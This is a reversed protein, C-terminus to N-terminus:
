DFRAHILGDVERVDGVRRIWAVYFNGTGGNHRLQIIEGTIDQFQEDGLGKAGRDEEEIMLTLTVIKRKGFADFLEQKTTPRFERATNTVEPSNM